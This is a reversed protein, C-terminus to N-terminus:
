FLVHSQESFSGGTVVISCLAIRQLGEALLAIRGEDVGRGVDQTAILWPEQPACCM